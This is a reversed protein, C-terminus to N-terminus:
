QLKVTLPDTACTASFTYSLNTINVPVKVANESITIRSTMLSTVLSTGGARGCAASSLKVSELISIRLM